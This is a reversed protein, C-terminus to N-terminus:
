ATIAVDERVHRGRIKTLRARLDDANLKASQCVMAFDKKNDFIFHEAVRKQRLHGSMWDEVARVVVAQWLRVEGTTDEAGAVEREIGSEIM